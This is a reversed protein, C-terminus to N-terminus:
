RLGHKDKEKMAYITMVLVTPALHLSLRSIAAAIFTAQEEPTITFVILYSLLQMFLSVLVIIAAKDKLIKKVSIAVSSLFFFFLM